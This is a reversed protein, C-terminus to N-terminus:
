SKKKKKKETKSKKCVNYFFLGEICAPDEVPISGLVEIASKAPLNVIGRGWAAAGIVALLVGLVSM